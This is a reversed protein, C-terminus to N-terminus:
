QIIRLRSHRDCSTRSGGGVRRSEAMRGAIVNLTLIDDGWARQREISQRVGFM